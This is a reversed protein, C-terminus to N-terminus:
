IGMVKSLIQHFNVSLLLGSELGWFSILCIQSAFRSKQVKQEVSHTWQPLGCRSMKMPPYHIGMIAEVVEQESNQSKCGFADGRIQQAGSELQTLCALIAGRPRQQSTSLQLSNGGSSYGPCVVDFVLIMVTHSTKWVSLSKRAWRGSQSSSPFTLPSVHRRSHRRHPSLTPCFM